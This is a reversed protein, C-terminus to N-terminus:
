DETLGADRLMLSGRYDDAGVPGGKTELSAAGLEIRGEHDHGSKM